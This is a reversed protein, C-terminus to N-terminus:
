DFDYTVWLSFQTMVADPEAGFSLYVCKSAPVALAVTGSSYAGTTTDLVKLLTANALGIFADAYKLDLDLETTPDADCTLAINTITFAASTKTILCIEHDVAYVDVPSIVTRGFFRNVAIGVGYPQGIPEWVAGTWRMFIPNTSSVNTGDDLYIEGTTPTTPAVSRETLKYSGRTSSDSVTLPPSTITVGAGMVFVLAIVCLITAIWKKM